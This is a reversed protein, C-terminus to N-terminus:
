EVSKLGLALAASIFLSGCIVGITRGDSATIRDRFISAFKGYSCLLAGDIILYTVSLVIFQPLLAQDTAIFQPFLSAFFVVAKPNTASTLFGQWYLANISRHKSAGLGSKNSLMMRLGLYILYMVGGWKLMEFVLPASSLATALGLSAIVMQLFNATLDGAATAGSRKFGNALSNSLMLLHSPGPVAMLLLVAGVYLLWIDLSM